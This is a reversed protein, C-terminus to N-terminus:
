IFRLSIPTGVGFIVCLGPLLSHVTAGMEATVPKARPAVLMFVRNWENFTRFKPNTSKTKSQNRTAGMGYWVDNNCPGMQSTPAVRMQRHHKRNEGMM